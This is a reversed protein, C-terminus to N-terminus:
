HLRLCRAKMTIKPSTKTKTGWCMVVRQATAQSKGCCREWAAGAQTCVKGNLSKKSSPRNLSGRLSHMLTKRRAADFNTTAKETASKLAKAKVKGDVKGQDRGLEHIANDKAMAHIANLLM